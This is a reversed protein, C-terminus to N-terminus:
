NAEACLAKGFRRRARRREIKGWGKICRGDGKTVFTVKRDAKRTRANM